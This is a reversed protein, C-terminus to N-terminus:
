NSRVEASVQPRLRKSKNCGLQGGASWPCKARSERPRQSRKASRMTPTPLDPRTKEPSSVPTATCFRAPRNAPMTTCTRGSSCGRARAAVRERGGRPYEEVREVGLDQLADGATGRRDLQRGPQVQASLPDLVVDPQHEAPHLCGVPGREDGARMGEAHEGDPLPWWADQGLEELPLASGRGAGGCARSASSPGAGAATVVGVVVVGRPCRRMRDSLRLAVAVSAPGVLLKVKVCRARLACITWAAMSVSASLPYVRVVNLLIERWARSHLM